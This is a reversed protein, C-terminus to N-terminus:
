STVLLGGAVISHSHPWHNSRWANMAGFGLDLADAPAPLDHLQAQESRDQSLIESRVTVDVHQDRESGPRPPTEEVHDAHLLLELRDEPSLDVQHFPLGHFLALIVDPALVDQAIQHRDIHRSSAYRRSM